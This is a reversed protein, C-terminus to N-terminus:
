SPLLASAISFFILLGTADVITTIMPASIVTPDIKLREAVIPVITATTNAWMVVAPLTLGIVLAVRLDGSWIMAQGFGIVGLILGLLLGAAIERQWARGIDSFSVDGVAMARIITAVTQSGANGGTGTILPIFANLIVFGLLLGEFSRIVFGTLTSAVFLLMLWVVRKSVIEGLSATFYPNRWRSPVM